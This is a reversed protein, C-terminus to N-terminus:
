SVQRGPEQGADEDAGQFVAGEDVAVAEGAGTCFVGLAGEKRQRGAEVFAVVEEGDEAFQLVEGGGAVEEVGAM